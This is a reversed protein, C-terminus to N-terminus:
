SVELCDVAKENALCTGWFTKNARLDDRIDHFEPIFMSLLAQDTVVTGYISPRSSDFNYVVTPQSHRDVSSLESAKVFM